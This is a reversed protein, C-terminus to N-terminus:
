VRILLSYRKSKWRRLGVRRELVVQGGRRQGWRREESKCDQGIAVPRRTKKGGQKRSVNNAVNVGGRGPSSIVTRKKLLGGKEGGGWYSSCESGCWMARSVGGIKGGLRLSSDM